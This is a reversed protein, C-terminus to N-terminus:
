FMRREAIAKYVTLRDMSELNSGVPLGRALCSVKIDSNRLKSNIYAATVEGEPTQNFAFIVEKYTISDNKIRDVLQKITLDDPSIGELPCILGGLVHYVGLYGGAKEIAILDRWTEVVCIISKDRKKSSCIYCDINKEKWVFCLRCKELDTKINKLSSCLAEIDQMNTDLFHQAVVYLNKSALYPVRQLQRLLNALTPNQEIM